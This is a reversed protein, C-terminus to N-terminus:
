IRTDIEVLQWDNDHQITSDIKWFGKLRNHNFM